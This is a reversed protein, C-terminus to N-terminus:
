PLTGCNRATPPFPSPALRTLPKSQKSPHKDISAALCSNKICPSLLATSARYRYPRGALAGYAEDNHRVPKVRFGAVARYQNIGSQANVSSFNGAGISGSLRPLKKVDAELKRRLELREGREARIRPRLLDAWRKGRVRRRVLHHGPNSSSWELVTDVRGVIQTM